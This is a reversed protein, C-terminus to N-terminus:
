NHRLTPSTSLTTSLAEPVKVKFNKEKVKGFRREDEDQLEHLKEKKKEKKRQQPKKKIM